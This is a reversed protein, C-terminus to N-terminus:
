QHARIELLVANRYTAKPLAFSYNVGPEGSWAQTLACRGAACSFVLKAAGSKGEEIRSSPLLTVRATSDDNQMYVIGRASDLSVKYSGAPMATRGTQFAFPVDVKMTQASATGAAVALAVAAIMLNTTLTKM